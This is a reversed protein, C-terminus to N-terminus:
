FLIRLDNKLFNKIQNCTDSFEQKNQYFQGPRPCDEDLICKDRDYDFILPYFGCGRPRYAYINCKKSKDDLFFCHGDINKLQFYNENIKVAFDEQKLNNISNELILNIDRSSLPMETEECCKGCDKCNSNM